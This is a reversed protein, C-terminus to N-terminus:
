LSAQRKTNDVFACAFRRDGDDWGDLNPYWLTFDGLNSDIETGDILDQYASGCQEVAAAEIDTTSPLPVSEDDLLGSTVVQGNNPTNCRSPLVRDDLRLSATTEEPGLDFCDLPGLSFFPVYASPEFPETLPEADLVACLVTRDDADWSQENPRWFRYNFGTSDVGFNETFLQGCSTNAVSSVQADGPYSTGFPEDLDTRGFFVGNYPEDCDILSVTSAGSLSYPDADDIPVFCDNTQLRDVRVIRGRPYDAAGGAVSGTLPDGSVSTV